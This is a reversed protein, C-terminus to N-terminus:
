IWWKWWPGPAGAMLWSGLWLLTCVIAVLWFVLSWALTRRTVPDMRYIWDSIAILVAEVLGGLRDLQKAM